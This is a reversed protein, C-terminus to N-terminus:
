PLLSQYSDLLRWLKVHLENSLICYTFKTYFTVHKHAENSTPQGFTSIDEEEEEEEEKHHEKNGRRFYIHM